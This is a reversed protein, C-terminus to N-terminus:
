LRMEEKLKREGQKHNLHSWDGAGEAQHWAEGHWLSKSRQFSLVFYVKEGAVQKSWPIKDCRCFLLLPKYKPNKFRIPDEGIHYSSPNCPLQSSAPSLSYATIMSSQSELLSCALSLSLSAMIMSPQSKLLDIRHNKM